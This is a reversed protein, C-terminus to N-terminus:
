LLKFEKLWEKEQASLMEFDILKREFGMKVFSQNRGDKRYCSNELRVGFKSSNYLGPEITYCMGDRFESKATETQNLCPPAEHVNIGIGHGLGHSFVFNKISDDLINHALCDLEFGTQVTSNYTNLFAQLVKTYVKKQLSNPTGKVFVRTIDTAM